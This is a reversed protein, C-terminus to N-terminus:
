RDDARRRNVIGAGQGMTARMAVVFSSRIPSFQGNGANFVRLASL